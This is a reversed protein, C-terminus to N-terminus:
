SYSLNTWICVYLFVVFRICIEHSNNIDSNVAVKIDCVPTLKISYIFMDLDTLLLNIQLM